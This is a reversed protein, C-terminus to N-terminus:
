IVKLCIEVQLKQTTKKLKQTTHYHTKRQLEGSVQSTISFVEKIHTM